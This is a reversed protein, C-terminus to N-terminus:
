EEMLGGCCDVLYMHVNAYQHLHKCINHTINAFTVLLKCMQLSTVVRKCIGLMQVHVTVDVDAWNVRKLNLTLLIFWSKIVDTDHAPTYSLPWYKKHYSELYSTSIMMVVVVTM